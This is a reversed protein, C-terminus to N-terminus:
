NNSHQFWIDVFDTASQYRVKCEQVSDSLLLPEFHHHIATQLDVPYTWLAENVEMGGDNDDDEVTRFIYQTYEESSTVRETLERPYTFNREYNEYVTSPYWSKKIRTSGDETYWYQEPLKMQHNNWQVIFKQLSESTRRLLLYHLIYLHNTNYRVLYVSGAPGYRRTTAEFEEFMGKYLQLCFKRADRWWREIPTNRTSPGAFFPDQQLGSLLIMMMVAMKRNESGRDTRTHSPVGERLIANYLNRATNTGNNKTHAVASIIYKSFGDIIGQVYIGYMCLKLWSDIHWCWNVGPSTFIKRTFRDNNRECRMFHAEPDVERLM